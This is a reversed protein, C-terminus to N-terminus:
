TSRSTFRGLRDRGQLTYNTNGVMRESVTTSIKQRWAVSLSRGRNGRGNKNGLMRASIKARAAASPMM